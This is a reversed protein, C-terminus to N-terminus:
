LFVIFFLQQTAESTNLKAKAPAESACVVYVTVTVFRVCAVGIVLAAELAVPPGSVRALLTKKPVGFM